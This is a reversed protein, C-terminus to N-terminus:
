DRIKEKVLAIVKNVLAVDINSQEITLATGDDSKVFGAGCLIQIGGNVKAVREQIAKNELNVKRFKENAPDKVLNGLLTQCTKLCTQAVGPARM